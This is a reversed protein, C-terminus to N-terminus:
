KALNSCFSITGLGVQSFSVQAQYYAYALLVNAASHGQQVHNLFPINTQDPRNFLEVVPFAILKAGVGGPPNALCDGPGDSVLCACNPYGHVHYLGDVLQHSLM